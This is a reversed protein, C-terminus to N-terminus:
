SHCWTPPRARPSAKLTADISLQLSDPEFATYSLNAAQADLLNNALTDAVGPALPLPSNATLEAGVQAESLSDACAIAPSALLGLILVLSLNTRM